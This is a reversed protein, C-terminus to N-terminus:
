NRAPHTKWLLQTLLQRAENERLHPMAEQMTQYKTRGAECHFETAACLACVPNIVKRDLLDTFQADVMAMGQEDTYDEAPYALAIICHRKPCLIQAIHIPM